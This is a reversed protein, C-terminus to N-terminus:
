VLVTGVAWARGNLFDRGTMSKKSEPQLQLLQLAGSGTMVVPGEGDASLVQGPVGEGPVVRAKWVKISEGRSLFYAGPWPQFGRIRNNLDAAAKTWDLCGDEKRLKPAFTASAHDQVRVPANGAALLDLARMLLQAGLVSFRGSLQVANEDPAIAHEEQVVIDGADMEKVVKFITVGSLTEGKAISWQLPAAGRYKPLLSPHVNLTAIRPLALVTTPIYQGYSAVAIVDPHWARLAAVADPSGIKEPTIVPLGLKLAADHIVGPQIRRNRGSPRDPQAVVGMLKHRPSSSLAELSPRSFDSSGFFVVNM